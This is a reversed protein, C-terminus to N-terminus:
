NGNYVGGISLILRPRQVDISKVTWLSGMWEVYRINNINENAFADALISIKNSIIVNDNLRGSDENRIYNQQVDGSYMRPTIKDEWVGPSTEESTTFGIAGYYKAM